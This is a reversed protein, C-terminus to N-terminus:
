DLLNHLEGFSRAWVGNRRVAPPLGQQAEIARVKDPFEGWFLPYWPKGNRQTKIYFVEDKLAHQKVFKELSALSTVGVLQLTYHESPRTKVWQERRLPDIPEQAKVAQELLPGTEDKIIDVVATELQQPEAGLESEALPRSLNEPEQEFAVAPAPQQEKYAELESPLGEFEALVEEVLEPSGPHEGIEVASFGDDKAAEEKLRDVSQDNKDTIEISEPSEEQPELAFQPPQVAELHEREDPNQDIERIFEKDNQPEESLPERETESNKFLRNIPEQFLLVGGILALIPLAMYIIQRITKNNLAQGRGRNVFANVIEQRLLGPVGKTDRYLKTMKSSDLELDASLGEVQLLFHMFSTAEARNLPQLDIVQISQPSMIRLQPTSLLMDIQEDAFLVISVLPEGARQREFLRLLTILGTPQLLHAEDVLIVPLQGQERMSEFRRVLGQLPDEKLDTWGSCRGITALLQEPSLTANAELLCVSWNDPSVQQIRAALLSKGIGLPGRVLPVFESNEILHRILDFRQSTETTTFYETDKVLM